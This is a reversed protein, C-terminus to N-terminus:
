FPQDIKGGERLAKTYGNLSVLCSKFTCVEVGFKMLKLPNIKDVRHLSCISSSIRKVPYKGVLPREQISSAWVAPNIDSNNAFINNIEHLTM